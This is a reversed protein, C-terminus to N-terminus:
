GGEKYRGIWKVVVKDGKVYDSVTIFYGKESITERDMYNITDSNIGHKLQLHALV